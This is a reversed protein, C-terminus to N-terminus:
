YIRHSRYTYSCDNCPVEIHEVERRVEYEKVDQTTDYLQIKHLTILHMEPRGILKLQNLKQEEKPNLKLKMIVQNDAEIISPDIRRKTYMGWIVNRKPNVFNKFTWPVLPPLTPSIDRSGARKEMYYGAWVMRRCNIDIGKYDQTLMICRIGNHRHQAWMKRLWMPTDKWGDAPFLTAGEDILLDVDHLKHFEDKSKWCTNALPCYRFQEPDDWYWLHKHYEKKEFDSNLKQNTLLIRHPLKPYYKECWYYEKILKETLRAQELSKCNGPKAWILIFWYPMVQRHWIRQWIETIDAWM